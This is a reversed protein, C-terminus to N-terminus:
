LKAPQKNIYIEVALILFGLALLVTIKGLSQLFITTIGFIIAILYYLLVAQRQTLGADVLRFHLHRRDGDAISKGHRLRSAIVWILDLIPVAMVLLATAFKGGSIVALVGLMFGLFLSGSEGLFIKAPYFNLILFGLCAGAFILAILAVDSQHWREGSAILYVMLAGIAVIGTTLGDLGDLIKTTYMMGFIWAFVLTDAIVAFNGLRVFDLYWIGGLPNTIKDIGVGSAIVLLIAIASVILRWQYSLNYKDDLIGLIILILGGVFVGVLKAIPLNQGILNTFNLSYFVVAWFSVFIAFGGLLPVARGHRKRGADPRDIIGFKKAFFMVALSALLSLLISALFYTM